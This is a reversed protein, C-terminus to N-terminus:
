ATPFPALPAPQIDLSERLARYLRVLDPLQYHANLGSPNPLLWVPREALPQDQPGVAARPRGYASRYAGLGLFAVSQPQWRAVTRELTPVGGRLETDTVEAAAATARHVLNTIGYGLTLLEAADTPVFRRRTFGAAYLTAWLRNAPNGFHHGIAASALGPNIGVFLVRMGPGVLDPVSGDRAAELAAPTPRPTM